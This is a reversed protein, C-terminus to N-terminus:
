YQNFNRTSSSPPPTPASQEDVNEIIVYNGFGGKKDNNVHYGCAVVKVKRNVKIEANKNKNGEDIGNHYTSGKYYVGDQEGYGFSVYGSGATFFPRDTPNNQGNYKATIFADINPADGKGSHLHPSYANKQGGKGDSILPTGGMTGITEGTNFVQGVKAFQVSMHAAIFYKKAM